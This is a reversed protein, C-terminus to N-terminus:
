DESGVSERGDFPWQPNWVIEWLNDDPDAFYGRYGGWSTEGAPRTIRGGANEAATLVADVEARSRVNQALMVSPYGDGLGAVGADEALAARDYLAIFIGGADFLPMAPKSKMHRRWGLAEFFTVSVQIDRVGLAVFSLNTTM